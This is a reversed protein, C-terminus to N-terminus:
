NFFRILIETMFYNSYDDCMWTATGVYEVPERTICMIGDVIVPLFVAGLQLLGFIGFIWLILNSKKM